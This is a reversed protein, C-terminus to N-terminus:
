LNVEMQKKTKPFVFIIFNYKLTFLNKKKNKKPQQKKIIQM